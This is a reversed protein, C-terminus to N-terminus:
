WGGALEIRFINFKKEGSVTPCLKDRGLGIELKHILKDKISGKEITQNLRSSVMGLLFDTLQLLDVEDSPLAQVQKVSASLNANQLVNGLVRLRDNGLRNTKIDCFVHYENFGFIWHHLMQYYFKYFGLEHDNNHFRILNVKKGEVAICRFRLQEGQDLFLKILAEYFSEYRYHVKQWKIESQFKYKERIVRIQRKIETRRETPLWLGGIMLFSAKKESHSTFVDPNSEDCYVDFEM